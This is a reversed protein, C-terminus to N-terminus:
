LGLKNSFTFFTVNLSLDFNLRFLIGVKYFFFISKVLDEIIEIPLYSDKSSFSSLYSSFFCSLSLMSSTSESVIVSSSDNESFPVKYSNVSSFLSDSLWILALVLLKPAEITL